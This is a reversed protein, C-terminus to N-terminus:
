KRAGAIIWATPDMKKGLVKGGEPWKMAEFHLHSGSKGSNGTVGVRGIMDGIRVNFRGKGYQGKDIKNDSLHAYLTMTGDNHMLLVVSGYGEITKTPLIRGDAAAYVPDGIAAPIDIGTHPKGAGSKKTRWKEKGDISYRGDSYAYGNPGIAGKKAPMKWGPIPGVRRAGKKVAADIEKQYWTYQQGVPNGRRCFASMNSM